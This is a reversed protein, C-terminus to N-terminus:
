HCLFPFVNVNKRLHVDFILVIVAAFLGTKNVGMDRVDLGHVGM